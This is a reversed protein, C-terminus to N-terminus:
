VVVTGIATVMVGGSDFTFDLAVWSLRGTSYSINFGEKTQNLSEPKSFDVEQLQSKDVGSSFRIRGAAFADIIKDATPLPIDDLLNVRITGGNVSFTTLVNTRVGYRSVWFEGISKLVESQRRVEKSSWKEREINVTVFSIKRGRIIEASKVGIGRDSSPYHYFTNVEVANTIGCKKALRIVTALERDSLVASPEFHLQLGKVTNTEAGSRFCIAFVLLTLTLILRVQRGVAAGRRQCKDCLM